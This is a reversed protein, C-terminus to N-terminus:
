FRIAVGTFIRGGIELGTEAKDDEADVVYARPKPAAPPAPPRSMAEARAARAPDATWTFLEPSSTRREQAVAPCATLLLFLIAFRTM